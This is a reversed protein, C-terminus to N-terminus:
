ATKKTRFRCSLLYVIGIAVAALLAYNWDINFNSGTELDVKVQPRILLDIPVSMPDRFLACGTLCTSSVLALLLRMM